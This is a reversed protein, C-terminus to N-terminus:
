FKDATPLFVEGRLFTVANGSLFVREGRVECDVVGGRKSCQFARLRDHGLRASWFPAMTTHASGTVPDEDIGTRPFFCRSVFDVDSSPDEAPATVLVGRAQVRALKRFDPTLGRVETENKLVALYDHRGRYLESVEAGLSDELSEDTTAAVEDSPFDMTYGDESKRVPLEGSKSSFVVEDGREKLEALIVHAAALTAHGCLDVEVTPTFWRLRFKEGDPVFFATESLQNEMAIQQMVGDPLWADLPVIAAPNGSFVAGSFADVQYIPYQSSRTSM